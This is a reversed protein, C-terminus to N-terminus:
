EPLGPDAVQLYLLDVLQEGLEEVFAALQPSGADHIGSLLHGLFVLAENGLDAPDPWSRLTTGGSRRRQAESNCAHWAANGYASVAPDRMRALPECWSTLGALDEDTLAQLNM